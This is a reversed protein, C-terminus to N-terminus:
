HRDSGCAVQRWKQPPCGKALMVYRTQREVLTAILSNDGRTGGLQAADVGGRLPSAPGSTSTRYGECEQAPFEGLRSRAWDDGGQAASFSMPAKSAMDVLLGSMGGGEVGCSAASNTALM